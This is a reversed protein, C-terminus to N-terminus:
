NAYWCISAIKRNNDKLPITAMAEDILKSMCKNGNSKISNLCKAMAVIDKKGRKFSCYYKNKRIVGYMLLTTVQFPFAKLCRKAYNKVYLEKQIKERCFFLKEKLILFKKTNNSWNNLYSKRASNSDIPKQKLFKEKRIVSFSYGVLRKMWKKNIVNKHNKHM